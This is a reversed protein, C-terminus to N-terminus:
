INQSEPKPYMSNFIEKAIDGRDLRVNLMYMGYLSEKDHAVQYAEQYYNLSSELDMLNNLEKAARKYVEAKEKRAESDILVDLAIDHFGYDSLKESLILRVSVNKMLNSSFYEIAEYEKLMLLDQILTSIYIRLVGSLERAEIESRNIIKQLLKYEKSTVNLYDKVQDLYKIDNCIFSLLFLDSIVHTTYESKNLTVEAAKHYERQLIFYSRKMDDNCQIQYENIYNILVPNRLQYLAIVLLKVDESNDLKWNDRLIKYLQNRDSEPFISLFVKLSPYNDKSARISDIAHSLAREREGRGAYLSALQIHALYTGVGEQYNSYKKADGLDICKLYCEEADYYYGIKEYVFAKYYYLDTLDPYLAISDRYVALAEEERNSLM